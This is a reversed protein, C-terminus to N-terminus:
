SVSSHEATDQGQAPRREPAIMRGECFRSSPTKKGLPVLARTSPATPTGGVDGILAAGVGM